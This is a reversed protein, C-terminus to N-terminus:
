LDRWVASFLFIPYKLLYYGRYSGVFTLCESTVFKLKRVLILGRERLGGPGLKDDKKERSSKKRQKQESVKLLYKETEKLDKELQAKRCEEHREHKNESNKRYKETKRSEIECPPWLIMLLNLLM